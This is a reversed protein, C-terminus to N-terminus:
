IKALGFTGLASATSCSLALEEFANNNQIDDSMIIKGDELWDLAMQFEFKMHDYSHLSDHFFIDVKPHKAKAKPLLERSDGLWLDWKDRLSDPVFWGSQAEKSELYGSLGQSDDHSPLDISVLSGRGNDALAKLIYASSKGNAVGTEVVVNPEMLRVVLYVTVCHVKLEGTDTQTKSLTNLGDSISEFFDESRKLEGLRESIESNTKKTVKRVFSLYEESSALIDCKRKEISVCDLQGDFLVDIQKKINNYANDDYDV